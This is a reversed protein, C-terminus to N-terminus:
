SNQKKLMELVILEAVEPSFGADIAQAKMGALLAFIDKSGELAELMGRNDLM